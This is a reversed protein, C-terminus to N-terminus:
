TIGLQLYDFTGGQLGLLRCTECQGCPQRDLFSLDAFETQVQRLVDKLQDVDENKLVIRESKYKGSPNPQIFAFEGATVTYQFNPDLDTILKYFLLQFYLSKDQKQTKGLIENQSKPKSTKYDIVCVTKTIDDILDIRDIKGVLRLNEFHIPPNYGFKEEVRLSPLFNAKNATYFNNVYTKSTAALDTLTLKPLAINKLSRDIVPWLQEVPLLEGTTNLHRYLFELAAHVATGIALPNTPVQPIRVLRKYVFGVPCQLYENLASVSLSFDALLSAIWEKDLALPDLWDSKEGLYQQLRDRLVSEELIPSLISDVPEIEFLFQSPQLERNREGSVESLSWSVSVQNRGRTLAVYFLRREDENREKADLEAYPVTGPLPSINGVPKVNGWYTDNAHLIFVVDWERGKAQHATVLQVAETKAHFTDLPLKIAHTRMAELRQLFEALKGEPYEASWSHVERLLSTVVQLDVLPGDSLWHSSYIGSERLVLEIFDALRLESERSQWLVLRDRLSLFVQPDSIGAESLLEETQMVEWASRAEGGLSHAARILKLVDLKPLDWWPQQLLLLMLPSEKRQRVSVFFRLLTLIQQVFPHDLVNEGSEVQFPIGEKQLVAQLVQSHSHKRFLVAMEAYPVGSEHQQALNEAIWLCEALTNQAEHKILLGAHQDASQLADHVSTLRTDTTPLPNKQILHAAATYFNQGCRYGQRLTIIEADPYEELFRFTNSFSAGQFRYISQNPDGVVFINAQEGWYSTLQQLVQLQSANTDQYEDVLFYQYLEQYEVLLEPNDRFADRVWLIMDDYDYTQKERLVREYDAYVQALERNKQATLLRKRREATKLDENAEVEEKEAAAAAKLQLSSLGERKYQSILTLCDKVYYLPNKPSYIFEFGGEKLLTEVLSLRDVEAISTKQRPSLPFLNQHTEIVETCFSHFTTCKVGYATAGIMQALRQQMNKAGSQTFTLALINHPQVDTNQLLAAIRTSLIQTKGTGPGAFVMVPGETTDVARKQEPNLRLYAESFTSM